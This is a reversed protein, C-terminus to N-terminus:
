VHMCRSVMSHSVLPSKRELLHSFSFTRIPVPGSRGTHQADALILDALRPISPHPHIM